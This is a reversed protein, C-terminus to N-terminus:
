AIAKRTEATPEYPQVPGNLQAIALNRTLPKAESVKTPQVM